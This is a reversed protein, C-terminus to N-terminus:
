VPSAKRIHVAASAVLLPSEQLCTIAVALADAADAQPPATLGLLVRVM